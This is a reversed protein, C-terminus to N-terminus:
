QGVDITAVERADQARPILVRTGVGVGASVLARAVAEAVYEHPVVDVRVGRDRLAGATGPGVACVQLSDLPHQSGPSTVLHDLLHAVGNASTFVVWDYEQLRSVVALLPAIEELPEIAIAPSVLVRAGLDSLADRLEGAQPWARTVVVCIGNLPKPNREANM